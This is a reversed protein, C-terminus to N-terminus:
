KLFFLPQLLYLSPYREENSTLLGRIHGIKSVPDIDVILFSDYDWHLPYLINRSNFVISEEEFTFLRMPNENWTFSYCRFSNGQLLTLFCEKRLSIEIGTVYGESDLDNQYEHLFEGDRYAHSYIKSSQQLTLLKDLVFEDQLFPIQYEGNGEYSILDDERARLFKLCNHPKQLYIYGM